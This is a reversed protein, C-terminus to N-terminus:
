IPGESIVDTVSITQRDNKLHSFDLDIGNLDIGPIM